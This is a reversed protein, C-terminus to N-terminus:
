KNVILLSTETKSLCNEYSIEVQIEGDVYNRNVLELVQQNQLSRELDATRKNLKKWAKKSVRVTKDSRRGTRM